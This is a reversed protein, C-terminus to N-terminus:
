TAPNMSSVCRGCSATKRDWGTLKSIAKISLGERKLEEIHQVDKGKVCQILAVPELPAILMFM